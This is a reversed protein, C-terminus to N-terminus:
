HVIVNTTSFVIRTGIFITPQFLDNCSNKFIGVMVRTAVRCLFREVFAVQTPLKTMILSRFIQEVVAGPENATVALDRSAQRDLSIHLFHTFKWMVYRGKDSGSSM